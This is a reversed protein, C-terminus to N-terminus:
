WSRRSEFLDFQFHWRFGPVAQQLSSWRNVNVPPHLLFHRKLLPWGGQQAPNLYQGLDGTHWQADVQNGEIGRAEIRQELDGRRAAPQRGLLRQGRNRSL